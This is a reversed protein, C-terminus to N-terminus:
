SFDILKKNFMNKNTHLIGNLFINLTRFMVKHRLGATGDIGEFEKLKVFM